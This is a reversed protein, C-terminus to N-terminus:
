LREFQYSGGHNELALFDHMGQRWVQNREPYSKQLSGEVSKAQRSLFEWM